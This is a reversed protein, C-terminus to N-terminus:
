PQRGQRPHARGPPLLLKRGHRHNNKPLLCSSFWFHSTTCPSVSTTCADARMSGFEGKKRERDTGNCISSHDTSKTERRAKVLPQRIVNQCTFLNTRKQLDVCLGVKTLLVMHIEETKFRYTFKFFIELDSFCTNQSVKLEGLPIYIYIM